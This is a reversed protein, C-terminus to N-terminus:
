VRRASGQRRADEDEGDPRDHAPRRRDGRPHDGAAPRPQQPDLLADYRGAALQPDAAEGTRPRHGGPPQGIEKNLHVLALEYRRVTSPKYPRGSRNTITGEKIGTILEEGAQAVTTSAPARVTGAAVAGRIEGRWIEAERQGDFHKPIRKRDRQSWVTA